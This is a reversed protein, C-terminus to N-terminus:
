DDIRKRKRPKKQELKKVEKVAEVFHREV